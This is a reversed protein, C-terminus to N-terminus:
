SRHLSMELMRFSPFTTSLRWLIKSSCDGVTLINVILRLAHHPIQPPNALLIKEEVAGVSEVKPQSDQAAPETSSGTVCNRSSTFGSSFILLTGAAETATSTPDMQTSLETTGVNSSPQQSSEQTKKESPKLSSLPRTITNLLGAVADVISPTKLLTQRDLLGLLLVVPYHSQPTQKEKGKGKRSTTRRMGAPLEHETLFFLSSSDNTEVIYSLADLCRQAVLDPAIDRTVQSTSPVSASPEKQKAASKPTQPSGKVPRFSLQAFNKDVTALDGTGDQLISLLLNFLDTRSKSNECLNVFVKFLLNRRSLQPFFLLRVISAVGPKDLLQVADRIQPPKRTVQAPESRPQTAERRPHAQQANDYYSGAEAIMHSPLTQLFGEDSEMLVSQRLQPDLSAIFSAPDIDAPGAATGDQAEQTERRTRELREQQLLEARIDPPLADLFDSSISSDVVQEAQVTRQERFHQNIVEERMDDPLAELFTPDIGTDTIDVPNGHIMVTIREITAASPGEGHNDEPLVEGESSSAEGMQVDDHVPPVESTSVTPEVVMPADVTAESDLTVSDDLVAEAATVSDDVSTQQASESTPAQDESAKAEEQKRAEEAAQAAAQEEEEAKERLEEAEAKEKEAKEKALRAVERAEPLLSCTIHNSARGAREQAQKQLTASAEESWRQLTMLPVFSALNQTRSDTSRVNQVRVPTPVGGRIHRPREDVLLGPGPPVQVQIDATITGGVTTVLRQM